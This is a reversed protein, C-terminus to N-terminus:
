YTSQQNTAGFACHPHMLDEGRKGFAEGRVLSQLPSSGRKRTRITCFFDSIQHILILVFSFPSPSFSLLLSTDLGLTMPLNSVQNLDIMFTSLPTSVTEKAHIRTFLRDSIGILAEEAPVFSGIQALFVLM